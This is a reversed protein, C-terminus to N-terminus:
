GRRKTLLSYGALALLGTSFLVLSHLEPAPYGPDTSPSTVYSSKGDSPNYYIRITETAPGSWSVRAGLWDGNSFDQTTTGKDECTINYEIKDDVLIESGSALVTVTGDPTIKCIDVTTTNGAKKNPDSTYIKATWASEGFGLDVQAGTDAYFWLAKQGDLICYTGYTPKTKNMVLDKDHVWGDNAYPAGVTTNEATTFYWTQTTEAAVVTVQVSASALVLMGFIVGEMLKVNKKM